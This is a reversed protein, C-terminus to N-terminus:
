DKLSMEFAVEELFGERVKGAKQILLQLKPDWLV